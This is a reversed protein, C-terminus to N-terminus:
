ATCAAAIAGAGAGSIFAHLGVVSPPLNMGKETYYQGGWVGYNSDSLINKFRELFLWYIASFPVDRWLTPALGVYLSSIGNQRILLKFEDIMGRPIKKKDGGGNSVISAQRTRILELPATSLSALLRSTSGALLPIYAQRKADDDLELNTNTDEISNNHTSIMCAVYRRLRMSLEDYVTNYKVAYSSNDILNLLYTAQM